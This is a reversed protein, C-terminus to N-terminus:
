AHLAEMEKAPTYTELNLHEICGAANLTRRLEKLLAWTQDAQHQLEPDHKAEDALIMAAHEMMREALEVHKQATSIDRGAMRVAMQNVAM